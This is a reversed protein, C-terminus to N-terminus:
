VSQAVQGVKYSTAVTILPTNVAGQGHDTWFINKDCLLDGNVEFVSVFWFVYSGYMANLSLM